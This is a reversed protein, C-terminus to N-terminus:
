PLQTKASSLHPRMMVVIPLTMLVLVALCVIARSLGVWDSAAGFFLPASGGAISGLTYFAGFARAQRDSRVFDTVTGYLVSSTGNLAVGLLPMLSLAAGIPAPLVTFLVVATVLETLAVTRLLGLREALLGCALKGMAGGAFVLALALGVIASSAGKEILLFPLMTLAGTRSASDILHIASLLAFGRKDTIGWAAASMKYHRHTAQPVSQNIPDGLSFRALAAFLAIGIAAVIWGYGLVSARWGILGAAAAIVFAVTMKGLDGFFNYVGLAARRKGVMFARSIISSSLPHQVSSGLGVVLITLFLSLYGHALAMAAFALGALVTGIGLMTREGFREAMLGAPIQFLAMAASFAMKLSGVQAYNLGFAQAWIPLLVYLSDAIGDHVFHAGSAITLGAHEITTPNYREDRAANTM